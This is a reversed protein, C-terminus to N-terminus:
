SHSESHSHFQLFQTAQEADLPQCFRYGQMEECGLNRLIEVQQQTEVGEAVVQLNFAKGINILTSIMATDEPNETLKHVCSQEIKLKHFPLDQLCGISVLGQGFDDLSLYIGLQQLEKLIERSQDLNQLITEETVEIELWHPDVGTKALAEAVVSVFHPHQFQKISINVSVPLHIMGPNQWQQNQSCATELIWQTIPIVLDTQELWPFFQKPAIFGKQPHKWRLLAEM